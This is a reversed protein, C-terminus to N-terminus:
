LSDVESKYQQEGNEDIYTIDSVYGNDTPLDIYDDFRHSNHKRYRVTIKYWGHTSTSNWEYKKYRARVQLSDFDRCEEILDAKGLSTYELFEERMGIYPLKDKFSKRIRRDDDSIYTYVTIGNRELQKRNLSNLDYVNNNLKIHTRLITDEHDRELLDVSKVFQYIEDMTMNNLDSVIKLSYIDFDHYRESYTVDINANNINYKQCLDEASNKFINIMNNRKLTIGALFLFIISLLIIKYKKRM